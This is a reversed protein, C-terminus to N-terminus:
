AIVEEGSPLIVRVPTSRHKALKISMAVPSGSGSLYKETEKTIAVVVTSERVVEGMSAMQYGPKMSHVSVPVGLSKVVHNVKGPLPHQHIKTPAIRPLVERLKRLQEPTAGEEACIVGLLVDPKLFKRREKEATLKKRELPTIGSGEDLWMALHLDAIQEIQRRKKPVADPLPGVDDKM